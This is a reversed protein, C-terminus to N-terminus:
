LTHVSLFRSDLASGPSVALCKAILGPCGLQKGTVGSQPQCIVFVTHPGCAGYGHLRSPGSHWSLTADM